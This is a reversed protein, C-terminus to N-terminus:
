NGAIVISCNVRTGGVPGCQVIYNSINLTATFTINSVFSSGGVTWVTDFQGGISATDGVSHTGDTYVVGTSFRDDNTDRILWSLSAAGSDCVYTVSQSLCLPSSCTTFQPDGLSYTLLPQTM